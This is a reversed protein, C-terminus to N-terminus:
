LKLDLQYRLDSNTNERTLVSFFDFSMSYSCLLLYDLVECQAKERSISIHERQFFM